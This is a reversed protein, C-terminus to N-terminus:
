ARLRHCVLDMPRFLPQPPRHLPTQHPPLTFKPPTHNTHNTHNHPLTFPYITFHQGYGTCKFLKSHLSHATPCRANDAAAVEDSPTLAGRSPLILQFCHTATHSHVNSLTQSNPIIPIIFEYVGVKPNPPESGTVGGGRGQLM